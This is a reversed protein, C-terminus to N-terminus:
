KSVSKYTQYIVEASIVTLIMNSLLTLYSLEETELKNANVLLNHRFKQILARNSFYFSDVEAEPVDKLQNLFDDFESFELDEPVTSKSQCPPLSILSISVIGYKKFRSLVEPSNTHMNGAVILPIKNHEVSVLANCVLTLDRESTHIKVMKCYYALVIKHQQFLISAIERKKEADNLQNSTAITVFRDLMTLKNIRFDEPIMKLMEVPLKIFNKQNSLFEQLFDFLQFNETQSTKLYALINRSSDHMLHFIPDVWGKDADWTKVTKRISEHSYKIQDDSDTECLVVTKGALYLMDVLTSNAIQHSKTSHIEGILFVKVKLLNIPDIVSGWPNLTVAYNAKIFACAKKAASAWRSAANISRNTNKFAVRSSTDQLYLYVLSSVSTINTM